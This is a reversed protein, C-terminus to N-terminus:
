PRDTGVALAHVPPAAAPEILWRFALDPDAGVVIDEPSLGAQTLQARWQAQRMPRTDAPLAPALWVRTHRAYRSLDAVAGIVGRDPTMHADCAILLRPTPHVALTDLVARRQARSDLRGADVVNSQTLATTM